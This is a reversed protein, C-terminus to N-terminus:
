VLQQETLWPKKLEKVLMRHIRNGHVPRQGAPDWSGEKRQLCHVKEMEVLARRQRHGRASGESRNKGPDRWGSEGKEKSAGTEDQSGWAVRFYRQYIHGLKICNVDKAKSHRTRLPSGSYLPFSTYKCSCKCGFDGLIRSDIHNYWVAM